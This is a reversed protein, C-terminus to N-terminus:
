IPLVAGIGDRRRVQRPGTEVVMAAAIGILSAITRQYAPMMPGGGAV